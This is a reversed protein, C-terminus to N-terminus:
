SDGHVRYEGLLWAEAETRSDFRQVPYVPQHYSLFMATLHRLMFSSGVIALTSVSNLVDPHSAFIQVEFDVTLLDEALLIVPVAQRGTLRLHGTHMYSVLDLTLHSFGGMDHYVIGNEGRWTQPKAPSDVGRLTM